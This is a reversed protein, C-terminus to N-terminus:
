VVTPYVKRIAAVADACDARSYKPAMMVGAFRGLIDITRPCSEKGYRISKGRPSNFSPWAPTITVKHEIEPV